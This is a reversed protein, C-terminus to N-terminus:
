NRITLPDTLVAAGGQVRAWQQERHVRGAPTLRLQGTLGAVQVRSLDRRNAAVAL